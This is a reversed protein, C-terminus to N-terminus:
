MKIFKTTTDMTKLIYLGAPLHSVAIQQSAAPHLTVSTIVTACSDYIMATQQQRVHHVKLFDGVPQPFVTVRSTNLERINTASNLAEHLLPDDPMKDKYLSFDDWYLELPHNRSKMFNAIEKNTYLKMPHWNTLGDSNLDDPHHTAIRENFIPVREGGEPTVAMYFHGPDKNEVVIKNGDQYYYEVTLWTDFPISFDHNAKGELRTAIYQSNDNITYKDTSFHFYFPNDSGIEHGIGVSLRFANKADGWANNNWFEALTFWSIKAQYEKLINMCASPFYLKVSQCMKYVGPKGGSVIAQVRSKSPVGTSTTVNPEYIAFYLATNDPNAPDAVLRAKRKLSDGGEYQIQFRGLFPYRESASESGFKTWNNNGEFAHDIGSIGEYQSDSFVWQTNGEFGSNFLLVGEDTINRPSQAFSFTVLSFLLMLPLSCLRIINEKVLVM